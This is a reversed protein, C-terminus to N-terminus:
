FSQYNHRLYLHTLDRVKTEDGIHADSIVASYHIIKEAKMNPNYKYIQPSLLKHFVTYVTSNM